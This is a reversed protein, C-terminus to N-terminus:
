VEKPTNRWNTYRNKSESIHFLFGNKAEYTQNHLEHVYPDAQCCYCSTIYNSFKQFNRYLLLCWDVAVLLHFWLHTTSEDM